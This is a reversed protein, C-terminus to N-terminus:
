QIIEIFLNFPPEPALSVQNSCSSENGGTDLATMAFYLSEVDGELELQTTYETMSPDYILTTHLTGDTKCNTMMHDAIYVNWGKFDSSINQEWSLKLTTAFCPMSLFLCLVIALLIKKM